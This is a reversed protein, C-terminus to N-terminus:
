DWDEPPEWSEFLTGNLEVPLEGDPVLTAVQEPDAWAEQSSPKSPSYLAVPKGHDDAKPHYAKLKAKPQSFAKASAKPLPMGFLDKKVRSDDFPRVYNGDKRTYGKNHAKLILM